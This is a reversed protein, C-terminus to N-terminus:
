GGNWVCAEWRSGVLPPPPFKASHNQKGPNARRDRTQHMRGNKMMKADSKSVHKQLNTIDNKSLKKFQAFGSIM